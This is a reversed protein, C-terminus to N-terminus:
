AVFDMQLFRVISASQVAFLSHRHLVPFSFHLGFFVSSRGDLSGSGAGAGAGSVVGGCYRFPIEAVGAVASGSGPAPTDADNLTENVMFRSIRFM